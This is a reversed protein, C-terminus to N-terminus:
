GNKDGHIPAMGLGFFAKIKGIEHIKASIKGIKIFYKGLHESFPLRKRSIHVQCNKGHFFYWLAKRGSLYKPWFASLLLFLLLM